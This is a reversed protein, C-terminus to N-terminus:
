TRKHEFTAIVTAMTHLSTIPVLCNWSQRKEIM